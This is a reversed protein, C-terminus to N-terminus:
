LAGALRQAVMERLAAVLPMALMTRIRTLLLHERTVHVGPLAGVEVREGREQLLVCLQGHRRRGAPEEAALRDEAEVGPIREAHSRGLMQVRRRPRVALRGVRDPPPHLRDGRGLRKPDLHQPDLVPQDRFDVVEQLRLENPPERNRRGCSSRRPIRGRGAQVPSGASESAPARALARHSRIRPCERTAPHSRRGPSRRSRAPICRLHVTANQLQLLGRSGVVPASGGCYRRRAPAILRSKAVAARASSACRNTGSGRGTVCTVVFKSRSTRTIATAWDGTASCLTCRQRANATSATEYKMVITSRVITFTAKGVIPRLSCKLSVFRCHTTVAYPSVNPPNRSSPPRAASRSPRRRTIIIPRASKVAADSAQASAVVSVKRITIRPTWPSPAAITSGAASAITIFMKGSPASRLLASPAQPAMAALPAVTPRIAPPKSVRYM